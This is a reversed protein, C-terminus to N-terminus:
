LSQRRTPNTTWGEKKRRNWLIASGHLFYCILMLVDMWIEVIASSSVIYTCKNDMDCLSNMCSKRVRQLLRKTMFCLSVIKYLFGHLGELYLFTLGNLILNQVKRCFDWLKIFQAIYVYFRM